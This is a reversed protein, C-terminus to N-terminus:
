LTSLVQIENAFSSNSIDLCKPRPNEAVRHPQGNLKIPCTILPDGWVYSLAEYTPTPSDDAPRLSTISLSATIDDQPQGAGLFMFRIEQHKPRLASYINDAM